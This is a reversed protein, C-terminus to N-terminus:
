SRDLILCAHLYWSNCSLGLDIGIEEILHTGESSLVLNEQLFLGSKLFTMGQQFPIYGYDGSSM